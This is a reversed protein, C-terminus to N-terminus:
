FLGHTLERPARVDDNVLRTVFEAQGELLLPFPSLCLSLSLFPVAEIKELVDRM